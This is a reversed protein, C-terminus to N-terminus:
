FTQGNENKFDENFMEVIHAKKGSNTSFMKINYTALM